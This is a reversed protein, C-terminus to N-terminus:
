YGFTKRLKKLLGSGIMNNANAIITKVLVLIDKEGAWNRQIIKPDVENIIDNLIYATAAIDDLYGVPGLLLEPILDIPSIFYAIIGAIKVKKSAPVDPDLSLKTLLHFLDPALMIYETWTNESATKEELWKKIDARLKQYFDKKQEDM